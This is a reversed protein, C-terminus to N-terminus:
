GMTILDSTRWLQKFHNFTEKVATWGVFWWEKCTRICAIWTCMWNMKTTMSRRVFRVCLINLKTTNGYKSTPARLCKRHFIHSSQWGIQHLNRHIAQIPSLWPSSFIVTNPSFGHSLKTVKQKVYYPSKQPSRGSNTFILTIFNDGFKTVIWTVIRDSKTEGLKTIKQAIQWFHHSNFHHLSWWM